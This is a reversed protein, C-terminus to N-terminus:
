WEAGATLPKALGVHDACYYWLGDAETVLPLTRCHDQGAPLFERPVQCAGYNGYRAHDFLGCAHPSALQNITINVPATIDGAFSLDVANGAQLSQLYTAAAANAAAGTASEAVLQDWAGPKPEWGRQDGDPRLWMLERLGKAEHEPCACALKNNRKDHTKSVKRRVYTASLVICTTESEPAIRARDRLTELARSLASPSCKVIERLKGQPFYAHGWWNINRQAAALVREPTPEARNTMILELERDAVMTFDSQKGFPAHTQAQQTKRRVVDTTM